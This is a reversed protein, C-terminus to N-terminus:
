VRWRDGVMAFGSVCDDPIDINNLVFIIEDRFIEFKNLLSKLYYEDLNNLFAYWRNQSFYQKFKNQEVLTEPLGGKYSGDAVLLM